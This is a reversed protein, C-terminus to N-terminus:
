RCIADYVERKRIGRDEAVRKMAEKRDLGEDCYNQFHEEISIDKWQDKRENEVELLTKGEIVVVYEGRAENEEYYRCAESLTMIEKEEYRKTLERCLAVRRDGLTEYLECLTAQLHHPAEYIIMTRTESKLEDLVQQRRKKKKPLFAEFAFRRSSLGSATIACVAAVAGPVAYVPIGEDACAAVLEEGPDSIGPAGADSIVALTQGSRLRDLLSPLKSRKNHEHYSTTPTHIDYHSLLKGSTRTDEACILDAEKLIRVGRFTMDELNGIPTAVLYLVGCKKEIDMCKWLRGHTFERSKMFM